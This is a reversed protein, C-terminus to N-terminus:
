AGQNQQIMKSFALVAGSFAEDPGSGQADGAEGPYAPRSFGQKALPYCSVQYEQGQREKPKFGARLLTKQFM